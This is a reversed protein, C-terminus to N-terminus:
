RAKKTDLRGWGEEDWHGGENEDEDGIAGLWGANKELWEELQSREHRLRIHISEDDDGLFSSPATRPATEPAARRRKRTQGPLVFREVAHDSESEAEDEEVEVPLINRLRSGRSPTHPQSSTPHAQVASSGRRHSPTDPEDNINPRSLAEEFRVSRPSDQDSTPSAKSASGSAQPEKISQVKSSKSPTASQAHAVRASPPSALAASRRSPTSAASSQDLSSGRGFAAGSQIAAARAKLAEPSRDGLQGSANVPSSQASGNVVRGSSRPSATSASLIKKVLPRLESLCSKFVVPRLGSSKEFATPDVSLSLSECALRASLSILGAGAQHRAARASSDAELAAILSTTRREAQELEGGQLGEDLKAYFSRILAQRSM